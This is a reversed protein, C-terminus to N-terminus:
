YCQMMIVSFKYMKKFSIVILISQTFFVKYNFEGRGASDSPGIYIWSPIEQAWDRHKRCGFAVSSPQTSEKSPLVPPRNNRKRPPQRHLILPVRELANGVILHHLFQLHRLIMEAIWFTGIDEAELDAQNPDM